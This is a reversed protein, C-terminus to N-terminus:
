EKLVFEHMGGGPHVPLDGLGKKAFEKVWGIGREWFVHREPVAWEGELEERDVSGLPIDLVSPWGPPMDPVSVAM